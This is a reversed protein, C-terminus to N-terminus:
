AGAAKKREITLSGGGALLLLLNAALLVLDFEWGTTAGSAFPVHMLGIKMGIAGVMIIGLVFAAWQTCLGIILALGALPEVVSLLRFLLLFGSPMGAPAVAWFAWKQGGHYLFIIGVVLRLVLYGWDRYRHLASGQM